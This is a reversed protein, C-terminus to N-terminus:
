FPREGIYNGPSAYRCVLVEQGAAEAQACGVARTERWVVQTYHGVDEVDGTTSNAPFVGPRFYRKERVWAGVKDEVSFYGRTGEWLNEGQPDAASDPAHRFQRTAALRDAWQQASAALHADWELPAVGVGARASNHAALLRQRFSLDPGVAGTLGALMLAAVALRPLSKRAASLKPRLGIM